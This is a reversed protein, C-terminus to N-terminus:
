STLLTLPIRLPRCIPDLGARTRVGCLHAWSSESRLREPDGKGQQGRSRIPARGGAPLPGDRDHGDRLLGVSTLNWIVSFFAKVLFLLMPEPM